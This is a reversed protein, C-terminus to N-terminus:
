AEQASPASGGSRASQAAERRRAARRLSITFHFILGIAVLVCSIYPLLWGPNEVVQLISLTDGKGFSAQYFAKGDYRLPQNMYVLVDRSEGTGPNSLHVLSSFNKPIDTGAYRDHSFKKLTVSYPLYQRRHRMALTYTRGEHTFSQPAGLSGSVLWTGYSKGGAVPEVFAAPKNVDNDNSVPALRIVTVQAGVGRDAPSPADGPGRGRLDANRHHGKVQLVVPTGPVAVSGGRALAREPISYVEDQRPDTVDILALEQDRGEIFNVTQGQEIALQSEVQFLSTVFEGAVFLVLGSHVVWLGAKNWSWELRFAMASLLNVGLVLGVLAGGPFVPIAWVSGPIQWYVLLSRMFVEVAGFTGLDVQALTCAVVLVMLAALCTITLKLSSLAKGVSKLTLSPTL